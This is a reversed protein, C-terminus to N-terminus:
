SPKLARAQLKIGAPGSVNDRCMRLFQKVYDNNRALSRSRARMVRLSRRLEFNAGTTVDTFDATLRDRRGADYSRRLARRPARRNESHRRFLRRIRTTLKM